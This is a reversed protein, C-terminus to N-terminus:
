EERNVFSKFIVQLEEPDFVSLTEDITMEGIKQANKVQNSSIYEVIKAVVLNRTVNKRGENVVYSDLYGRVAVLDGDNLSILLKSALDGYSVVHVYKKMTGVNTELTFHVAMKQDKDTVREDVKGRVYGMGVFLNFM